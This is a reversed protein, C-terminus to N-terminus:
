ELGLALLDWEPSEKTWLKKRVEDPLDGFSVWIDSDPSRAFYARGICREEEPLDPDVGYPDAVYAHLWFVEAADPDIRRGEEKRINLWQELSLDDEVRDATTSPKEVKTSESKLNTMALGKETTHLM